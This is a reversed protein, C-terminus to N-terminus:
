WSLTESGTVVRSGNLPAWDTTPGSSPPAGAAMGAVAYLYDVELKGSVNGDFELVIAADPTEARWSVRTSVGGPLTVSKGNVKVNALNVSPKVMFHMMRPADASSLTVTIKGGNRSLMIFPRPASASRATRVRWKREEFGRPSFDDARDTSLQSADSSTAWWSKATQTETVHFVDGPKPYRMSFRDTAAFWVTGIFAAAMLGLGVWRGRNNAGFDIIVPGILALAFPVILAIPAPTLPAVTMYTTIVGTLLMAGWLGGCLASAFLVLPSGIGKRAALAILAISILAAWILIWSAGPLWIQAAISGVLCAIASGIWLAAGPRIFLTVGSCLAVFIWLAWDMENIRDRMAITGDPYIARALFHSVVGATAMLFLSGVVAKGAQSWSVGLRQFQSLGLGAFGIVILGWTWDAPYRVVGLSFFDFFTSDANPTPLHQANALARTTTVAFDGLHQMADPDINAVTDTPMHYDALGDIYAANIGIVGKALSVSLDTDNPMRQYVANALSNGTPSIANEAWLSVLNGNNDSTQFMVARGRSGRAEVNVVAGVRAALPHRNFFEQAGVLGVEEADTLLFLTDRMPKQGSSLVRATELVAAVGAADDSAGNAGHVSDYHAMLLVSKAAPDRGPLIGVINDFPSVSVAGKRRADFNAQRVGVGNQTEVRLGMKGLETILWNRARDHGASGIPRPESAISRLTTQAKVLSYGTGADGSPPERAILALLISLGVVIPLLLIHRVM